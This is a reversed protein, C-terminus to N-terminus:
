IIILLPFSNYLKKAWHLQWVIFYLFDLVLNMSADWSGGLIYSLLYSTKM